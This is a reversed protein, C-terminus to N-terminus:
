RVEVAVRVIANKGVVYVLEYSGPADPASFEVTSGSQPVPAYGLYDLTGRQVFGIWHYRHRPGEFGVKIREGAAIADPVQLSGVAPSVEIAQTAIIKESENLVYRLEYAGAEVPAMVTAQTTPSRVRAYDRYENIAGGAPAFGIWHGSGTPGTSEISVSDGAMVTAPGSIRAESAVVTVPRSAIIREREDLVYRIEYEGPESPPMLEVETVTGTIRAYKLYSTISSGKPAFGIWHQSGVPGRATIKVKTGAVVTDPAEISAEADGVDVMVRALVMSKRLPSVYRLEFQGATAPSRVLLEGKAAGQGQKPVNAYDLYSSDKSGVPAFAVYDGKDAPGSWAVTIDSAIVIAGMAAVSAEAPPLAPATSASVAGDIAAGLEAADRANFYRGGTNEALCRLQAQHQPNTVDFGIVHATFDVGSKELQAGVACPDMNCTEEGDSVLIVTAKQESSKLAEAAHIVAASLPTMGLANLGNVTKMYADAELPGVEILTQIDNCDGKRRHGYAVLGLNNQASWDRVVGAITERAIEVKSRDGIKGWMSGSADLVLMMNEGAIAPTAVACCLSLLLHIPRM